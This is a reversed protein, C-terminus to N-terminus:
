EDGDGDSMSTSKTVSKGDVSFNCGNMVLDKKGGRGYSAIKLM